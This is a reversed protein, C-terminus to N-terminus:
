AQQIYAGARRPKVVKFYYIAGAIGGVLVLVGAVIGIIVGTSM